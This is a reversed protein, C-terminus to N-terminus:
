GAERRPVVADALAAPHGEHALGEAPALVFQPDADSGSLEKLLRPRKGPPSLGKGSIHEANKGAKDATGRGDGRIHRVAAGRDPVAGPRPPLRGAQQVRTASEEVAVPAM